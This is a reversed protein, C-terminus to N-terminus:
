VCSSPAAIVCGAFVWVYTYFSNFLGLLSTWNAYVCMENMKFSTSATLIISSYKDTLLKCDWTKPKCMKFMPVTFCKNSALGKWWM